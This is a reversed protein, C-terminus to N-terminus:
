NVWDVRTARTGATPPPESGSSDSFILAPKSTAGTREDHGALIFGFGKEDAYALRGDPLRVIMVRDRRNIKISSARNPHHLTPRM